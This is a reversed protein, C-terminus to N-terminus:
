ARVPRNAVETAAAAAVSASSARAELDALQKLSDPSSETRYFEIAVARLAAHNPFMALARDVIPKLAATGLLALNCVLVTKEQPQNDKSDLYALVRAPGEPMEMRCMGFLANLEILKNKPRDALTRLADAVLPGDMFALGSAAVAAVYADDDSSARVLAPVAAPDNIKGLVQAAVIKQKRDSSGLMKELLGRGDAGLGRVKLLVDINLNAAGAEVGPLRATKLLIKELDALATNM